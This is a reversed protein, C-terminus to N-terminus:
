IHPSALVSIIFDTGLFMWSELPRDWWIGQLVSRRGGGQAGEPTASPWWSCCCPNLRLLFHLRETTDSEKHGWPSYRVLSMQEHSKGPLLVPSSQWKMRWSFCLRIVSPVAKFHSLFHTCVWVVGRPPGRPACPHLIFISDNNQVKCKECFHGAWHTLSWLSGM